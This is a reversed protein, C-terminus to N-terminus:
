QPGGGFQAARKQERALEAAADAIAKAEEYRAKAADPDGTSAASRVPDRLSVTLDRPYADPDAMLRAAALFAKPWDWGANKAAILAGGLDRAWDPGRMAEALELLQPQASEITM